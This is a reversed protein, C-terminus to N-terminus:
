LLTVHDIHGVKCFYYHSDQIDMKYLQKCLIEKSELLSFIYVESWLIRLQFATVLDRSQNNGRLRSSLYIISDTSGLKRVDELALFDFKIFLIYYSM